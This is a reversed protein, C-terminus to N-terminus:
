KNYNWKVYYCIKQDDKRVLKRAQNIHYTNLINLIKM